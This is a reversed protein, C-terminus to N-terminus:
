GMMDSNRPLHPKNPIFTVHGQNEKGSIYLRYQPSPAGIFLFYVSGDTGDERIRKVRMMNGDNSLVTFNAVFKKREPVGGALSDGPRLGRIDIVNESKKESALDERVASVLADLVRMETLFREEGTSPFTRASDPTNTHSKIPLTSIM